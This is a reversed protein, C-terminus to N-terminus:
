LLLVRGSEGDGAKKDGPEQDPRIVPAPSSGIWVPGAETRKLRGAPKTKRAGGARKTKGKAVGTRTRRAKNSTKRAKAPKSKGKKTPMCGGSPSFASHLIIFASDFAVAQCKIKM